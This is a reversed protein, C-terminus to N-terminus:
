KACKKKGCDTPMSVSNETNSECADYELVCGSSNTTCVYVRSRDHQLFLLILPLRLDFM